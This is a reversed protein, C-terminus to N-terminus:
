PPAQCSHNFSARVLAIDTANIVGDPAGPAWAEAGASRDYSRHQAPAAADGTFRTRVQALDASDVRGDDNVDYFDWANAPDRRGGRTIDTGLEEADSCGDGDSDAGSAPWGDNISGFETTWYWGYPSGAVFARGIGITRMNSHLMNANHGSSNRWQEFTAQATSNGAAINEAM